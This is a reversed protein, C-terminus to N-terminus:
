YVLLTNPSPRATGKQGGGGRRGRGARIGQEGEAGTGPTAAGARGGLWGFSLGCWGLRKEPSRLRLSGFLPGGDGAGSSQRPPTGGRLGRRWLSVSLGLPLRGHLVLCVPWRSRSLSLSRSFLFSAAGVLGPWREAGSRPDASSSLTLTSLPLQAAIRGDPHKAAASHTETHRDADRM